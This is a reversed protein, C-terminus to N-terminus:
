VGAQHRPTKIIPWRIWRGISNLLFLITASQHHSPIQRGQGLKQTMKKKEGECSHTQLNQM